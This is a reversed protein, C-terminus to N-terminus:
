RVGVLAANVVNVGWTTSGPFASVSYGTVDPPTNGQSTARIATATGSAWRMVGPDIQAAVGQWNINSGNSGTFLVGVWVPVSPADVATVAREIVTATTGTTVQQSILPTGTPLSNSGCAYAVIWVTDGSTGATAPFAVVYDITGQLPTGRALFLDGKTTAIAGVGTTGPVWPTGFGVTGKVIPKATAKAALDATLGTVDSQSHVHATPTRADSLRPDTTDVKGALGASVESDRAISAPITSDPATGSGDLKLWGNVTNYGSSADLAGVDGADLVVVGTQGNVSDVAGGGGGAALEDLAEAVQAPVPDWDGETAPTYPVDSADGDFAGGGPDGKEGQGVVEVEVVDGSVDVDVFATLPDVEISV